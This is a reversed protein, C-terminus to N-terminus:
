YKANKGQAANMANPSLMPLMKRSTFGSCIFRTICHPPSSPKPKIMPPWYKEFMGYESYGLDSNQSSLGPSMTM